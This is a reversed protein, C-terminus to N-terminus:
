QLTFSVATKVNAGPNYTTNTKTVSSVRITSTGKRSNSNTTMQFLAWGNSATTSTRSASLAGTVDTRVSAGGVAVNNQDVILARWFITQGRRFSSKLNGNADTTILNAVHTVVPSPPPPPPALDGDLVGDLNRDIGMRTGSGRPVGMPTLVDGVTVGNRLQTRTFPGVGTRDTQYDNSAPRYLLGMRQGNVTGKVILDINGAVAQGELLTWDNTVATNNVNAATVTRAYGVAPAMGTDFCLLFATLNTKRVTDNSFNQFVPNSLFAFLSPVSGDHLIGFGGVTTAGGANNFSLKQYVNRLQPVKFAQNEQLVSAPIIVRNSGPGPNATHCTNCTINSAFPENLFTNRGASPNGGAITAPLTRDLNQNPNPQFQITNIFDRYATMDTSTLTAGGMLSNFAGNFDIFTARDGRWHLPDLGDLGRLTQTTMPGKMPHMQVTGFPSTVSQMNGGPNGLDWALLDMDSDIHCAACSASGNGSLKADYLFGRGNRIVQPTPDFLGAGMERVVSNSSTDVVSVTNSIRNLVYLHQGTRSLAVGRPGRKTRPNVASGTSPGIEIRALVNGNVDLRAVRDTGFAAVYLFNGTPEFTMAAPQALATAKAELNPLVTYDISPNLDFSSVAGGPMLIRTVRNDVFHGRVNPEFQVLNRADTNGVYLDGTTPRVAIGLNITGVGSYYRAVTMTGVDIEAVDNDPMTYNIVSPNWRPDTAEVILGEQPAAPLNPNTPPPPAPAKDAPIITTQNGSLAFAAYVRSGDPSVALARPNEGLLPISKLQQHTSVDFVRVANSRSVTVFAKNGAFVVDAPEDKVYITDIVIGQSVSVISISDSVQNVVWAEDNTRPNVSVPEIGVPVEAILAPNSEQSLDFVSLRADPTNVAFLRAGDASVRVPNTQSGEFNVFSSQPVGTQTSGTFPLLTAFLMLAIVISKLIRM